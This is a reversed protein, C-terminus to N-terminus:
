VKLFYFLRKDEWLMNEPRFLKGDYVYFRTSSVEKFARPCTFPGGDQFHTLIICRPRLGCVVQNSGKCNQNRIHNHNRIQVFIDASRRIQRFFPVSRRTQTGRNAVRIRTLLLHIQQQGTVRCGFMVDTACFSSKCQQKGTNRHRKSDNLLFKFSAFTTKM